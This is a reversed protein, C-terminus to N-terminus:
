AEAEQVGSFVLASARTNSCMMKGRKKSSLNGAVGENRFENDGFIIKMNEAFIEM